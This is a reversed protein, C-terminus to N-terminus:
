ENIEGEIRNRVRTVKRKVTNFFWNRKKEAHLSISESKSIAKKFWDEQFECLKQDSSQLFNPNGFIAYVAKITPSSILITSSSVLMENHYLSFEGCSSDASSNPLFKRGVEAMARWHEILEDLTDCVKIADEANKFGGSNFLYEIQNLTNDAINLSWLETSNITKFNALIAETLKIDPFSLADFDFPTKRLYEFDFVTLGWVYLKFAILKPFFCYYFIPIEETVYYISVEPIKKVEQLDTLVNTLYDNYNNIQQSFPNYTFFVTDTKDFILADLSLNFQTALLKLEDPTLVTDGRMRRYVADRGVNFLESLALVADSKKSFRSLIIEFVQDQLKKDM